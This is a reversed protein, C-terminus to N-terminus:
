QFALFNYLMKIAEDRTANDYPRFEGDSQVDLFRLAAAIAVYGEYGESTRDFDYLESKFIESKIALKQYGIARVLYKAIEERRIPLDDVEEGTLLLGKQRWLSEHYEASQAGQYSSYSNYASSLLTLFETESIQIGSRLKGGSFGIGIQRLMEVEHQYRSSQIDEYLVVDQEETETNIVRLGTTSAFKLPLEDTHDVCYYLKANFRQNKEDWQLRYRLALTNEEFIKEFILNADAFKTPRPLRVKSWSAYFSTIKDRELQYGISISDSLMYADNEYRIYKLFVTDSKEGIQRNLDSEDLRIKGTYKQAYQEIFASAAREAEEVDNKTITQQEGSASYETFSVLELNKADLEISYSGSADDLDFSWVYKSELYAREYLTAYKVDMEEAELFELQKAKKSAEALSKLGSKNEVEVQEYPEITEMESVVTPTDEYYLEFFNGAYESKGTRANIAYSEDLKPVYATRVNDLMEDQENYYYTYIKKLGINSRYAFEAEKVDLIGKTSEYDVVPVYDADFATIKGMTYDIEAMANLGAVLIGDKYYDFHFTYSETGVKYDENLVFSEHDNPHSKAIFDRAIVKSEELSYLPLKKLSQESLESSKTVNSYSYINGDEGYRVFQISDEGEWTLDYYTQGNYLGMSYILKTNNDNIVVRSKIDALISELKEKSINQDPEQALEGEIAPDQAAESMDQLETTMERNQTTYNQVAESPIVTLFMGVILILSFIKKM